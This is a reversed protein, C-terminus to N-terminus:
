SLAHSVNLVNRNLKLQSVLNTWEDMKNANEWKHKASHWFVGKFIAIFPAFERRRWMCDGKVVM